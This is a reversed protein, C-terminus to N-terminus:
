ERKRREGDSNKLVSTRGRKRLIVTRKEEWRDQSQCNVGEVGRRYVSQRGRKCLRRRERKRTCMGKKEEEQLSLSNRKIDSRRTLSVQGEKNLIIIPSFGPGKEEEGPLGLILASKERGSRVAHRKEGEKSLLATFGAAIRERKKLGLGAFPGLKERKKEALSASAQGKRKGNERVRIRQAPSVGGKTTDLCRHDSKKKKLYLIAVQGQREKERGRDVFDPRASNKDREGRGFPTAKRSGSRIFSM